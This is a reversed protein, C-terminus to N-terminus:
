EADLRGAESIGARAPGEALLKGVVTPSTPVYLLLSEPVIRSSASPVSKCKCSVMGM